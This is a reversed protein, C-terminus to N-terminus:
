KSSKSADVSAFLVSMVTYFRKMGSLLAIKSRGVNIVPVGMLKLLRKCDENHKPTVRVLRRSFKNEDEVSGEETAIKLEKEAKEARDVLEQPTCSAVATFAATAVLLLAPRVIRSRLM